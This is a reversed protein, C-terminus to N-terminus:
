LGTGGRVRVFIIVFIDPMCVKAATAEAEEELAQIRDQLSQMLQEAAGVRSSVGAVAGAGAWLWGFMRDVEDALRRGM